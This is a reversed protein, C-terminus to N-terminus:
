RKVGASAPSDATAARLPRGVLRGDARVLIGDSGAEALRTCRELYFGLQDAAVLVLPSAAHAVDGELRTAVWPLFWRREGSGTVELGIAHEAGEDAHVDTVM